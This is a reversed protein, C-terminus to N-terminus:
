KATIVFHDRRNQAWCAENEDTCFPQEKGMSVVNIRAAPVGLSSLFDRVAAARRDGLALNYESTGRSDCHGEVTIHTSEWKKLWDADKQLTTRTQDSLDSKDLEFFVDDLPKESNLEALSKRAFLEAENPTPPAPPPEQRPAPPPTPPPPPAQTQAPPPPPPPAPTAPPKKHCAVTAAALIVAV